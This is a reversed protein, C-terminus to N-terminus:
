STGNLELYTAARLVSELTDGLAGCAVCPKM